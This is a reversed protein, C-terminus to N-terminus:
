VTRAEFLQRTLLMQGTHERLHELAHLLAWAASVETPWNLSPRAHTKRMVGWDSSAPRQLLARCEVAMAEIWDQLAVVDGATAIFESDRDRPPLPAGTAVSLWSRTSHMAHVGLVALSNTDDAAPRWNLAETSAGETATRMAELADELIARAAVLM